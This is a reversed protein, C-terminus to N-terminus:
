MNRFPQPDMRRGQRNYIDIYRNVFYHFLLNDEEDADPDHFAVHNRPPPVPACRSKCLPCYHKSRDRIDKPRKDTCECCHPLTLACCHGCARQSPDHDKFCSVTDLIMRDLEETHKHSTCFGDPVSVSRRCRAGAQTTGNCKYM